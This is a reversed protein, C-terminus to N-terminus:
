KKRTVPVCFDGDDNLLKAFDDFSIFADGGVGWDAGWSNRVRVLKKAVNVGRVLIDHGGVVNGTATILGEHNPYFMDEHWNIGMVGPGHHGIALIADEPSFAWRYESMHGLAKVAKAGALTTTGTDQGQDNNPDDDLLKAAGYLALATRDDLGKIPVPKAIMEGTWAFGVCAGVHGQDLVQDSAWTYSRPKQSPLIDRINFQRSREDFHVQRDLVRRNGDRDTFINKQKM